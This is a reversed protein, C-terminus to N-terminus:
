DLALIHAQIPPVHEYTETTPVMGAPPVGLSTMAADTLLAYPRPGILEQAHNKLLRHAINVEPGLLEEQGAIRQIVYDGHHMVFKLGLDGIRRCSGCTCTWESNAAALREHFAAHCSRLCALMDPGRMTLEDDTAVAFVADGEFKALRFPPVLEAVIRDLLSSLLAYAVPPEDAEVILAHHADAVGQLFGTYGSIDALLLTGRARSGGAAPSTM